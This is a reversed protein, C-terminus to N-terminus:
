PGAYRFAAWVAPSTQDVDPSTIMEVQAARLAAAPDGSKAYVEHFAVMVPLTLGDDVEWMAGVVGGAGAVLLSRSLGAFGGSRGQRARLTRCASLVVLRVGHLDMKEVEVARLRGTTDAGALLLYSREPRTDDFLSHGAYHIIRARRAEAMFAEVTARSDKLITHDPYVGGLSDAELGASPLPNLRPYFRANFTPNGVLLARGGAQWALPPAAADALTAAYRIPHDQILYRGSASDRLAAFPIAAIEGDVLFVVPAESGGLHGAVPRLLLDYLSSLRANVTAASASAELAIGVREIQRLLDGRSVTDCVMSVSDGRVTWTLLTDGILAIEVATEGRRSRPPGAAAGRAAFLSVRGRELAALAEKPSGRRVALMVMRDVHERQKDLVAARLWAAETSGADRVYTMALDLDKLAGEDDLAAHRAESRLILTPVLWTPEGRFFEAASDYVAGLPPHEVVLRGFRVLNETWEVVSSDTIQAAFVKASDIDRRAGTEDGNEMRMRARATLAEVMAYPTTKLGLAVGAGEEQLVFAARTLGDDLAVGSLATLLNPLRISKRHGRLLTVARHLQRYAVLRDGRAHEVEGANGLTTAQNETEGLQAFMSSSKLYQEPAPAYDIQKQKLNAVFWLTRAALSPYQATDVHALARELLPKALRDREFFQAMAAYHAEAYQKLVRSPPTADVVLKFAAGAQEIEGKRHHEVGAFFAKHARALAATASTDGAAEHIAEVADALSHDVLGDPRDLAAALGEALALQAAATTAATDGRLVAGGWAGLVDAFGFERARQRDRAVFARLQAASAGAVPDPLPPPIARLVRLSRRADAAWPSASDLSLYAEWAKVAETQLGIREIALAANFAADVDTSDLSMAELARELSVLLDFANQSHEARLMHAASLDVLLPVSDSSLRLARELAQIADDLAGEDSNRWVLGSVGSARASDPDFSDGAAALKRLNLRTDGAEGCRERPIDGAHVKDPMCPRYATPISLRPTFVRAPMARVLEEMVPPRAVAQRSDNCAVGGCVVVALAALPLLLRKTPANPRPETSRTPLSVAPTPLQGTSSPHLNSWSHSFITAALNSYM